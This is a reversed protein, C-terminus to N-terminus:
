RDVWAIPASVIQKESGVWEFRVDSDSVGALVPREPAVVYYTAERKVAGADDLEMVAWGTPDAHHYVLYPKAADSFTPETSGAPGAISPDSWSEGDFRAVNVRYDNGDFRSWAVLAGGATAFLSPNVDPVANGEAVPSPASWVGNAFRSWLIEDDQGDYAAWAVLWSGDDLVATSLAIQTGPGPPSLTETPGWGGAVWRSTQVAMKNHADGALWVLAQFGGNRDAVFTPEALMKPQGLAPSPLVDVEAGRGRLLEIGPEGNVRSSAAVLWEGPSSRFDSVRSVRALPLEVREGAPPQVYSKGDAVMLADGHATRAAPGVASAPGASWTLAALSGLAIGIKLTTKM